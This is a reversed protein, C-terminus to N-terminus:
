TTMALLTLSSAIWFGPAAGPDSRRESAIVGFAAARRFAQAAVQRLLQYIFKRAKDPFNVARWEAKM